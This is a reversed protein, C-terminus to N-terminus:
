VPAFICFINLIDNTNFLFTSIKNLVIFLIFLFWVKYQYKFSSHVTSDQLVVSSEAFFIIGICALYSWNLVQTHFSNRIKAGDILIISKARMVFPRVKNVKFRIPSM